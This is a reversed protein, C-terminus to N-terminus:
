RFFDGTKKRTPRDQREYRCVRGPSNRKGLPSRGGSVFQQNDFDILILLPYCGLLQINIIGNKAAREHKQPLRNLLLIRTNLWIHKIRAERCLITSPPPCCETYNVVHYHFIAVWLSHSEPFLNKERGRSGCKEANKGYLSIIRMSSTIFQPQQFTSFLKAFFTMNSVSPMNSSSTTILFILSHFTM